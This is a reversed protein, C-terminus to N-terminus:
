VRREHITVGFLSFHSFFEYQAAGLALDTDDREVPRVLQIGEAHVHAEFQFAHQLLRIGIRLCGHDHQICGPAGKADSKINAAAMRARRGPFM